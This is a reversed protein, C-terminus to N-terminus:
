VKLLTENLSYLFLLMFHSVYRVSNSIDCIVYVDPRNIKKYKWQMNFLMGDYSGNKRLTRKIDLTGRKYNRKRKSYRAYIKKAFRHIIEKMEEMHHEELEGFRTQQLRDELIDKSRRGERLEYQDKVYNETYERLDKKKKELVSIMSQAGPIKMESFYLIDEDFDKMGIEDMIKQVYIGQQTTYLMESLKATDIAKNFLEIFKKDDRNIIAETLEGLEKDSDKAIDFNEGENCMSFLEINFFSEFQKEFIANDEEMKILATNLAYKFNERDSYGIHKIGTIADITESVSIRVGANRLNYCFDQLINDM